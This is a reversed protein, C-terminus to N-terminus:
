KSIKEKEGTAPANARKELDACADMLVAFPTAGDPLLGDELMKGYDAELIARGEGSPVLKLQGTVAALYDIVNGEADKERFFIAKHDAVNRALDPAGIAKTAVGARDLQVLDYWHRSYRDGGLKGQLCFVHVATAKEWFTREARMTRANCRPFDIEKLLIAADAVIERLESPEGTSRAGFEIKVRPAVYGTGTGVAIYTIVLTDNEATVKAEPDIELLKAEFYPLATSKVWDALRKRIEDTWREQQSRSKPWGDTTQKTLDGAITRIDYTIDIDESFRDIAHYAKSLSTGGKFVMHEAFPSAFLQELTWVVWIDKELLHLPRGLATQAVALADQKEQASLTFYSEAM